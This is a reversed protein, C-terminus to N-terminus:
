LLHLPVSIICNNLDTPVDRQGYSLKLINDVLRSLINQCPSSLIVRWPGILTMIVVLLILLLGSHWVKATRGSPEVDCVLIHSDILSIFTSSDGTPHWMVSILLVPVCVACTMCACMRSSLWVLYTIAFDYFVENSLFPNLLIVTLRFQKTYSYISGCLFM